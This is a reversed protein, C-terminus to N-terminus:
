IRVRPDLAANLVDAATNALIILAGAILTIGCVVPLDLSSASDVVLKGLGPLGFMTETFVAGAMTTGIDMAAMTALTPLAGRVAHRTVIRRESWGYARLTRIHDLGLTELVGSRTLRAYTAASVLAIALWPLLLNQAWQLPDETIPVYTPFPLVQIWVCAVVLLFLALIFVPTSSLALVTFTTARDRLSGPRRASYLGAGIGLVLWMVAAGLTLSVDVPLRQLLMQTVPESSQYSYGLCPASCWVTTPGTNFSHGGVLTTLFTWYQEYIPRDTGLSHRVAQLQAATCGKGCALVAPDGPILYFVVYVVASLALLVGLAGFLRRLLFSTM